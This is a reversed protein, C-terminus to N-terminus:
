AVAQTSNPDFWRIRDPAPRIPLRDGPSVRADSHVIARFSHGDVDCTV